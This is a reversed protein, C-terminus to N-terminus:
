FQAACSGDLAQEAGLGHHSEFASKAILETQVLFVGAAARNRHITRILHPGQQPGAM